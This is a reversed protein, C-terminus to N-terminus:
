NVSVSTLLWAIPIPIIRYFHQSKDLEVQDTILTIKVARPTNYASILAMLLSTTIINTVRFKLSIEPAYYDVVWSDLDSGPPHSVISKVRATNLM